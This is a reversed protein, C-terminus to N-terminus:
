AKAPTNPRRNLAMAMGGIAVAVPCIVADVTRRSGAVSTTSAGQLKGIGLAVCDRRDEAQRDDRVGDAVDKVEADQCAGASRVQEQHRKEDRDARDQETGPDQTLPEFWLM